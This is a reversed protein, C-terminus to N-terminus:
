PAAIEADPNKPQLPIELSFSTGRGDSSSVFVRGEHAKAVGKVLALGLGWGQPANKGTHKRRRFPEFIMIQDEEPIAPGHNHITLRFRQDNAQLRITIPMGADGYKVANSILNEVAREFKSADILAMLPAGEYDFRPGFNMELRRLLSLLLTQLDVEKLQLSEPGGSKLYTTDLLDQVLNNVIDISEIAKSAFSGVEPRHPNFQIAQTAMRASNLPTRLDHTLTAVLEQRLSNHVESFKEIAILIARDIADYLIEGDKRSLKSEARLVSLIVKRLIQYECVLQGPEYNSLEAREAGHEGAIHLVKTTSREKQAAITKALDRLYDPLSNTLILEPLKAAEPIEKRVRNKWAEIIKDIQEYLLQGLDPDEDEFAENVTSRINEEIMPQLIAFIKASPM